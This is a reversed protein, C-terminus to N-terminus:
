FGLRFYKAAEWRKEGNDDTWSTLDKVFVCVRACICQLTYRLVGQIIFFPCNRVPSISSGTGLEKARKKTFMGSRDAHLEGGGTNSHQEHDEAWVRARGFFRGTTNHMIYNALALCLWPQCADRLGIFPSRSDSMM